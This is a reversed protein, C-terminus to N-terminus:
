KRSDIYDRLDQNIKATIPVKIYSEYLSMETNRQDFQYKVLNIEMSWSLEDSASLDMEKVVIFDDIEGLADIFEFIDAAEGTIELNSPVERLVLPISDALSSEAVNVSDNDSAFQENVTLNYEIALDSIKQGFNVVETLETPAISNLIEVDQELSSKNSFMSKVQSLSQQKQTLEERALNIQDLTGFIEFILPIVFGFIGLLFLLISLVPFIYVKLFKLIKTSSSEDKNQSKNLELAKEITMKEESNSM